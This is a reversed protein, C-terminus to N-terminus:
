ALQLFERSMWVNGSLSHSPYPDGWFSVRFVCVCESARQAVSRCLAPGELVRGVVLLGM